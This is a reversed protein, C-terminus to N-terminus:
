AESNEEANTESSEISEIDGSEVAGATNAEQKLIELVRQERIYSDVLYTDAAGETYFAAPETEYKKALIKAAEERDELAIKREDGEAWLDFAGYIVLEKKILDRAHDSLDEDSLEGGNETIYKKFSEVYSKILAEPLSKSLKSAKVLGDILEEDTTGFDPPMKVSVYDDFATLFDQIGARGPEEPIEPATATPMCASLTLLLTALSLFAVTKKLM